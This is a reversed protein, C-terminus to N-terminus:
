CRKLMINDYKYENQLRHREIQGDRYHFPVYGHSIVFDLLTRSRPTGDLDYDGVEVTLVPGAGLVSAMGQLISWEASEADIKVFDPMGHERAYADLSLARVDLEVATYAEPGALRPATLSNFMSKTPGFDKLRLTGESHWVAVQNCTVNELDEANQALRAFTSPTPEFSHVTGEAEVLRSALRTFYGYHAGVDYVRQGRTLESLMFASLGEEFFRYGFVQCSLAEPLLLHM